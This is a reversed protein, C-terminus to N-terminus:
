VNNRLYAITVGDGGQNAPALAAREIAPHSRLHNRVVERLAGTGKGHIIRVYPLGARTAADLYRELMAPVESARQGRLDIEMPATEDFAPRTIRRQLEPEKARGLRELETIPQRMKLAGLQVDAFGDEIATVEGDIGLSLVRVRDGARITRPSQQVTARRSREAQKRRLSRVAEEALEVQRRRDEVHERTVAVMERDRQLARVVGLIQNDAKGQPLGEVPEIETLQTQFYLRGLAELSGLRSLPIGETIPGANAVLSDLTRSVQRANRAVESMGKKHNDLEELTMMPLYVDHEEFRFLCTPDHMLVNTDLVFLKRVETVEEPHVRKKRSGQARPAAASRAEPPTSKGDRAVPTSPALPAAPAELEDEAAMPQLLAATQKKRGRPAPAVPELAAAM